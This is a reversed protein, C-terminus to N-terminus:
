MMFGGRSAKKYNIKHVRNVTRKFKRRSVRKSLKKRKM